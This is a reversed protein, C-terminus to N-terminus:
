PRVEWSPISDTRGSFTFSGQYFGRWLLVFHGDIAIHNSYVYMNIDQSNAYFDTPFSISAGNQSWYVTMSYCPLAQSTFTHSGSTVIEHTPNIVGPFSNIDRISIEDESVFVYLIDKEKDNITSLLKEIKNLSEGLPVKPVGDVIVTRGYRENLSSVASSFNAIREMEEKTDNQKSFSSNEFDIENCSVLGLSIILSM